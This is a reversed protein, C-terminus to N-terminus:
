CQKMPLMSVLIPVSGWEKCQSKKGNSRNNGGARPPDRQEPPPRDLPPPPRQGPSDRDPFGGVYLLSRAATRM